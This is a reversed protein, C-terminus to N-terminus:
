RGGFVTQLIESTRAGPDKRILAEQEALKLFLGDLAKETVYSDLDLNDTNMYSNLFGMGGVLQKYASTVGAEDTAEQVVPRIAQNLRGESKKRFYDTAATDGGNLIGRGDELTMNSITETFISLTEPVAREAARNMARLFDDVLKGQGAGRLGGTLTDLSDPIPIRVQPDDLYGGQRGLYQVASNVGTTLAEKLGQNVQETSLSATNANVATTTTLEKASDLWKNWDASLDATFVTVGVLLVVISYISKM